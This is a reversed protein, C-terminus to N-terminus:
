REIGIPRGEVPLRSSIPVIRVRHELDSDILGSVWWYTWVAVTLVLTQRLPRQITEWHDRRRVLVYGTGVTVPVTILIVSMFVSLHHTMIWTVTLLIAVATFRLDRHWKTLLVLFVALLAFSMSQVHVQTGWTIFETNIALLAAGLLAIKPDDTLNRFVVYGAVLVLPFLALIFLGLFLRPDLGALQTGM